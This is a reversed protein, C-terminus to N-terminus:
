LEAERDAQAEAPRVETGAQRSILERLGTMTARNRADQEPTSLWSGAPGPFAELAADATPAELAAHMGELELQDYTRGAGPFGAPSGDAYWADLAATARALQDPSVQM